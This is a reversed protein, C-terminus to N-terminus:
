TRSPLSYVRAEWFINMIVLLASIALPSQRQYATLAQILRQGDTGRLRERYEQLLRDIQVVIEELRGPEYYLSSRRGALRTLWAAALM